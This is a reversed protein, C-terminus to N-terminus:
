RAFLLGVVCVVVLGSVCVRECHAGIDEAAAIGIRVNLRAWGWLLLLRLTELVVSPHERRPQVLLRLNGVIQRDVTARVTRVSGRL